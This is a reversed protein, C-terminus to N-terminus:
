KSDTPRFIGDKHEVVMEDWMPNMSEILQVKKERRWKKLISERQLAANPGEFTEYYVLTTMKYSAAFGSKGTQHEHIRRNLDNTMGIYLRRNKNSLIYTYYTRRNAM